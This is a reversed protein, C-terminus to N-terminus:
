ASEDVMREQVADTALRLADEYSLPSRESNPGNWLLALSHGDSINPAQAIQQVAM